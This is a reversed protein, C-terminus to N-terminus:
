ELRALGIKKSEKFCLFFFWISLLLYVTTLVASKILGTMEIQGGSLVARMGEFIYSTPVWAAIKQAWVPLVSLPYFVASFPSLVYIAMWALAQIRMGFRLILGAVLFGAVWGFMLLLAMYPLLLWGLGSLVNIKYLLWILLTAFSITTVMKMLGLIVVAVIWESVKLPTSFLNVLNSSWLEELLNITIEYQSRWVVMWLVLGSLIMLVIQSVNAGSKQIYVSTLGWLLIDVAPWYFSDALRDLSHRFNYLHRWIVANIRGRNM